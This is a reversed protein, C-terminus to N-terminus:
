LEEPGKRYRTYGAKANVVVGRNNNKGLKEAKRKAGSQTRHGASVVAGGGVKVKWEDDEYIVYYDGAAM